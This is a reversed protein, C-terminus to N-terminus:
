SPAPFSYKCCFKTKVPCLLPTTFTHMDRRGRRGWSDGRRKESLLEDKGISRLMIGHPSRQQSSTIALDPVHGDVLALEMEVVDLAQVM